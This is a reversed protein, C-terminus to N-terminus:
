EKRIDDGSHNTLCSEWQPNFADSKTTIYEEVTILLLAEGPLVKKTDMQDAGPATIGPPQLENTKNSDHPRPQIFIVIIWRPTDQMETRPPTWLTRRSSPKDTVQSIWKRNPSTPHDKYFSMAMGFVIPDRAIFM